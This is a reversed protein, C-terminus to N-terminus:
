LNGAIKSLRRNQNTIVQLIIGSFLSLLSSTLLFCGFILSPFRAVKGTEFYEAFPPVLFVIALIAVILAIASFFQAPRYDRFLRIMTKLILWGDSFTKLKSTSGDIREKYHSPIEKIIFNNELAYATMETEIEFNNSELHLGEIFQRNMARYGSMVDHISAKFMFNLLRCFAQNGFNHFPRTNETFYTSSLRDGIVVDAKGEAVIEVLRPADAADYTDDADVMLYIDADINRMMTRMMNGKGRRLETIVIAGAEAAIDATHDDSANDGVYIEAQPIAKRFDTIVKQITLEENYCPIMVAIKKDKM